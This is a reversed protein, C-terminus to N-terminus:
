SVSRDVVGARAGAVLDMEARGGALPLEVGVDRARVLAPDEGVGPCESRTDGVVVSPPADHAELRVAQFPDGAHGHVWGDGATAVTGSLAETALEGLLENELPELGDVAHRGRVVLTGYEPQYEDDELFGLLTM